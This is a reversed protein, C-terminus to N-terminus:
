KTEEKEANAGDRGTLFSLVIQRYHLAYSEDFNVVRSWMRLGQYYYLIMEAAAEANVTSFEGTSIGYRILSMWREKARGEIMQFIERHEGTNAFEYIALSLSREPHMLEKQILDMTKNLILLASERNKIQEEFTYQDAILRIFVEDTSSFHRYLGGRSLGTQDCLDSMSVDKFGKRSFLKEASELIMRETEDGKKM